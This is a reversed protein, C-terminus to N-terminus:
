NLKIETGKIKDFVKILTKCATPNYIGFPRTEPKSVHKDQAFFSVVFATPSTFRQLLIPTFNFTKMGQVLSAKIVIKMM